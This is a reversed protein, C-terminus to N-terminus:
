YLCMKFFIRSLSFLNLKQIKKIYLIGLLQVGLVVLFELVVLYDTWDKITQTYCQIDELYSLINFYNKCM